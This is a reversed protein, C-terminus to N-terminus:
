TLGELGAVLRDIEGTTIGAVIHPRLYDILQANFRGAARMMERETDNLQLNPRQNLM